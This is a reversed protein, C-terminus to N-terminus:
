DTYNYGRSDPSTEIMKLQSSSIDFWLGFGSNHTKKFEDTYRFVGWAHLHAQGALVDQRVHEPLEEPISQFQVQGKGPIDQPGQRTAEMYNPEDPMRNVPIGHVYIRATVHATTQGTNIVDCRVVFTHPKTWELRWNQFAIYARTTIHLAETAIDASLKAADAARKTARASRVGVKWTRNTYKLLTWTFIGMFVAAVAQVVAGVAVIWDTM